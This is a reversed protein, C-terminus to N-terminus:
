ELRYNLHVRDAEVQTFIDGSRHEGAVCVIHGSGAKDNHPLMLVVPLAAFKECLSSAYNLVVSEPQTEYTLTISGYEVAHVAASFIGSCALLIYYRM